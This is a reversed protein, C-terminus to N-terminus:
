PVGGGYARFQVSLSPLFGASSHEEGQERVASVVHDSTGREWQWLKEVMIYYIDRQGTFWFLDEGRLAGKTLCKSEPVFILLVPMWMGKSSFAKCQRRSAM